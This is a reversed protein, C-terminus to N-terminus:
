DLEVKGVRIVDRAIMLEENTPVVLVKVKSEPTSLFTEDVQKGTIENLKEDIVVGLAEKIRECVHLRTEPSKEGIGATFIIADVGGMYVFYSGIYDAISKEQMRLILDAKANGESQLRRVDRADSFGTYGFFGSKNNLQDVIGDATIKEHKEIFQVVAPDIRGSRTGMVLGDLPTLGMSTDVVKGYKIAAVSAGNGIHCSILRLEEIPKGLMEAARQSVYKHSTGHFGYKRIAYKDYWEYPVAYMYAEDPMTLHFSTDFVGVNVVNPLVEMFARVGVLNAPNHLPGLDNVSEVVKISEENMIVSDNYKEGCHLIRHGVGKIENLDKVLKLDLLAKLLISVCCAHNKMEKAEKKTKYVTACNEGYKIMFGPEAQGIKEFNGVAICKEETKTMELLQFKLSSSGANIALIKSM